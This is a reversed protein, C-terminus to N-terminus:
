TLGEEVRKLNALGASLSPPVVEYGIQGTKKGGTKSVDAFVETLQGYDVRTRYLQDMSGLPLGYTELLLLAQQDSISISGDNHVKGVVPDPGKADDVSLVFSGGDQKINLGTKVEKTGLDQMFDNFM